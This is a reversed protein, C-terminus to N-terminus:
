KDSCLYWICMVSVKQLLKPYQQKKYLQINHTEDHNADFFSGLVLVQEVGLMKVLAVMLTM